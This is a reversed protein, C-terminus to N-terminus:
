GAGSGAGARFGTEPTTPFNHSIFHPLAHPSTNAWSKL